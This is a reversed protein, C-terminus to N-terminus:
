AHCAAEARTSALAEVQNHIVLEQCAAVFGSLGRARSDAKTKNCNKVQQIQALLIESLALSLPFRYMFTSQPGKHDKPRDLPDGELAQQIAAVLDQAEPQAILELCRNLMWHSWYDPQDCLKKYESWDM